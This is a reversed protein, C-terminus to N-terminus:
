KGKKNSAKDGQNVLKRLDDIENTEIEGESVLHALLAKPDGKFLNSVLSSVMSRRLEMDAVESRYFRERGRVESNLVGKKELRSLVTAVTTHALSIPKLGQQVDKATGEGLHNLLQVIQLQQDSLRIDDKM